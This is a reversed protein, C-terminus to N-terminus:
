PKPAHRISAVYATDSSFLDHLKATEAFHAKLQEDSAAAEDFEVAEDPGKPAPQDIFEQTAKDVPATPAATEVPAATKVEALQAALRTNREQLARTVDWGDSFAEALLDQDDGCAKRLAAFRAKEAEVGAAHAADYVDRHDAQLSELTLAPPKEDKAMMIEKTPDISFMIKNDTDAFATSETNPAAGLVCMSVEVITAARFVAGPGKLTHGNVEVEEGELVQTVRTPPVNLSAQMPFGDKMDQYLATARSNTLYHGDFHVGDSEIARDPAVGVRGLPDHTDLVPTRSGAFTLGELDFALNGWYWHQPIISGDYADIHFTRAEAEGEREAYQVADAPCAFTCAITPATNTGNWAM